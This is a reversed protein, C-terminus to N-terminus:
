DWNGMRLVTLLILRIRKVKGFIAFLRASEREFMIGIEIRTLQASM